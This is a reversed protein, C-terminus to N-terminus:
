CRREFVDGRPICGNSVLVGRELNSRRLLGRRRCQLREILENIKAACDASTATEANLPKIRDGRRGMISELSEKIAGDFKARDDGKGPVSPIGPKRM